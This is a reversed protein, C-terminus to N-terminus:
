PLGFPDGPVGYIYIYIYKKKGRHQLPSILGLAGGREELVGKGSKGRINKVLAGMVGWVGIYHMEGYHGLFEETQM